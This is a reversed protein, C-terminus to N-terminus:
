PRTESAIGLSLYDLGSGGYRRPICLGLLGEAAMKPVIDRPFEQARDWERVHPLIERCCFERTANRVADHDSTLTFDM